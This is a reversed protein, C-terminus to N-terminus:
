RAFSADFTISGEGVVASIPKMRQIREGLEFKDLAKEPARGSAGDYADAVISRDNTRSWSALEHDRDVHQHGAPM